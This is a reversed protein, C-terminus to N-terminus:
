YMEHETITTVYIYMETSVSTSKATVEKMCRDSRLFEMECELASEHEICSRNM